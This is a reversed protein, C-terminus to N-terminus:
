GLIWHAVRNPTLKTADISLRDEAGSAAYAARSLAPQFHQAGHLLLQAPQRSFACLAAATSVGGARLIGPAAASWLYEDEASSDFGNLDLATREIGAAFPRALLCWVSAAHTGVLHVASFHKQAKAWAVGTLIDQVRHRLSSANYTSDFSAIRARRPFLASGEFVDLTLVAVGKALLAGALAGPSGSVLDLQSPSGWTDVIIALPVKSKTGEPYILAGHLLDDAGKRSLWLRSHKGEAPTKWASERVLLDSSEPQRAGLVAQFLSRANAAFAKWDRAANERTRWAQAQDKLYSTLKEPTTGGEPPKRSPFVRLGEGESKFAHEKAWGSDDVGFWIRGLWAYLAERSNRDYNHGAHQYYYTINQEAKAGFLKYVSRVAPYELTPTHTTWDGTCGILLQPKPAFLASIEMNNTGVRLLPANECLCGGQMVGSVMVAPAAAQIREDLAALVFTQTGGGSAGTVALRKADTEPLSLLFDVARISNFTQLGFLSISWLDLKDSDNKGFNHPIQCSDNYGVMDYTFVIGGRRAVNIALGPMSADAQDVLRGDKWHGHALLLAPCPTKPLPHPRYLNGTVYFGPHSEFYVNEVSYGDREVRGTVRPNLAGRPPEPILGAALRIQLRLESARTLWDAKSKPAAFSYPYDIHRIDLLRQDIRPLASGM